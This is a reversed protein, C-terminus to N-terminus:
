ANGREGQIFNKRYFPSFFPLFRQIIEDRIAKFYQAIAFKRRKTGILVMKAKFPKGM